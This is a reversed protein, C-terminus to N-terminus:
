RGVLGKDGKGIAGITGAGLYSSLMFAAGDVVDNTWFGLTGMQEWVNGELYKKTHYVPLAEKLDEDLERFTASWGNDVMLNIDGNVLANIAGGAYGVGELFKFATSGILRGTGHALHSTLSQNQARIEDNDADYRLQFDYEEPNLGFDGEGFYSSPTSYKLAREVDTASLSSKRQSDEQLGTMPDVPKNLLSEAQKKTLSSPM